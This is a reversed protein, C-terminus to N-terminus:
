SDGKNKFMREHSSVFHTHSIPQPPHLRIKNCLFVFTMTKIEHVGTECPDTIHTEQGNLLRYEDTKVM